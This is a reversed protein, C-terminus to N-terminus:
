FLFTIIAEHSLPYCHGGLPSNKHTSSLTVFRAFRPPPSGRERSKERLFISFGQLRTQPPYRDRMVSFYFSIKVVNVLMRKDISRLFDSTSFRSFLALLKDWIKTSKLTEAELQGSRLLKFDYSRHCNIKWLRFKNNNLLKNLKIERLTSQKETRKNEIKWQWYPKPPFRINRSVISQRSVDLCTVVSGIDRPPCKPIKQAPIHRGPSWIPM